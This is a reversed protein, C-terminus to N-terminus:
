HIFLPVTKVKNGDFVSIYFLGTINNKIQILENNKSSGNQLTKGELSSILFEFKSSTNIEISLHSQIQKVKLSFDREQFESNSVTNYEILNLDAVIPLHDSAVTTESSELNYNILQEQNLSETDFVFSNTINIVHDSSIIFDLKGPPWYSSLNKWTYNFPINIHLCNVNEISTDDWDPTSDQGFQSENKIDGTLLTELQDNFGVFNFDGSLVFPTGFPIESYTGSKVKRIFEIFRDAERQRGNDDDCCQGHLNISLFKFGNPVDLLVAMMRSSLSYSEVIDYKSATINRTNSFTKTNWLDGTWDNLLNELYTESIDSENFTIIDPNLATIINEFNDKRSNDALGENLTNYSLLRISQNDIQNISGNQYVNLLNKLNYSSASDPLFDATSTEFIYDFTGAQFLNVNNFPIYNKNICFEFTNSTTSPAVIFGIDNMNREWNAIGPYYVRFTRQGFDFILECGLGNVDAGTTINKDSDLYLKVDTSSYATEYFKYEQKSELLFYIYNEDDTIKLSLLDLTAGDSGSDSLSNIDIWDEFNGDIIINQGLVFVSNLILYTILIHKMNM